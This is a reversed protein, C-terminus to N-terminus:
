KLRYDIIFLSRTISYCSPVDNAGNQDQRGEGMALEADTASKTELLSYM